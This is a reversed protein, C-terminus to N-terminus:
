FEISQLAMETATSSRSACPLLAGERLSETVDTLEDSGAYAEQGWGRYCIGSPRWSWATEAPVLRVAAACLSSRSM